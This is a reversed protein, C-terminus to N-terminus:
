SLETQNIVCLAEVIKAHRRAVPKFRQPGLPLALM